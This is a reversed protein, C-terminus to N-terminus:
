PLTPLVLSLVPLTTSLRCTCESPGERSCSSGAPGLSGTNRLFDVGGRGIRYPAQGARSGSSGAALLETGPLSAGAGSDGEPWLHGTREAWVGEPGVCVGLGDRGLPRLTGSVELSSAPTGAACRCVACPRACPVGEACTRRQGQTSRSQTWLLRRTETEGCCPDPHAPRPSAPAQLPARLRATCLRPSGCRGAGWEVSQHAGERQGAREKFASSRELAARPSACSTVEAPELKGGRRVAPSTEPTPPPGTSM